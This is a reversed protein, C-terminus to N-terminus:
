QCGAAFSTQFCIFDNVNLIPPTTSGDCNAYSDGAAYKTQFCIFDNVNLVPSATGSQQAFTGEFRRMEPEVLALDLAAVAEAPAEAAVQGVADYTDTEIGFRITGEYVKPARILFRTLRTALGLTLLLLGTAEPDLTGCHGIKKQKLIRRARQVVDHSTCGPEKDVLLLGDKM